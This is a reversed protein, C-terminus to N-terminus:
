GGNYPNSHDRHSTSEMLRFKRVAEAFKAESESGTVTKPRDGNSIDVREINLEKDVTTLWEHGEEDTVLSLPFGNPVVRALGSAAIRFLWHRVNYENTGKRNYGGGRATVRFGEHAYSHARTGIIALSKFAMHELWEYRRDLRDNNVLVKYRIFDQAKAHRQEAMLRYQRVEPPLVGYGLTYSHSFSYRSVSNEKWYQLLRVCKPIQSKLAKCVKAMKLEERQNKHDHLTIAGKKRLTVKHLKNLCIVGITIEDLHELESYTLRPKRPKTEM